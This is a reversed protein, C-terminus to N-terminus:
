PLSQLNLIPTLLCCTGATLSVREMTVAPLGGRIIVINLDPHFGRAVEVTLDTSFADALLIETEPMLAYDQNKLSVLLRPLLVEENKAPIVITLESPTNM